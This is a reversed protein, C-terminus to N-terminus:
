LLAAEVERLLELRRTAQPIYKAAEPWDAARLVELREQAKVIAAQVDPTKGIYVITRQKVKGGQRYTEVAYYYDRTL